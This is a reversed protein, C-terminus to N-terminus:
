PRREGDRLADDQADEFLEDEDPHAARREQRAQLREAVAVNAAERLRRLLLYSLLVSILLGGFVAVVPGAGLLGLVVVALVFLALRALFYTVVPLV